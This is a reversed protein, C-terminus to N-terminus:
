SADRIVAEAEETISPEDAMWESMQQALIKGKEPDRQVLRVLAPDFLEKYRDAKAARREIEEHPKESLLRIVERQRITAICGFYVSAIYVPNLADLLDDM